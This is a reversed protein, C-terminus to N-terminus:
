ESAIWDSTGHDFELTLIPGGNPIIEVLIRGASKGRTVAELRASELSTCRVVEGNELSLIILNSVSNEQINNSSIAVTNRTIM